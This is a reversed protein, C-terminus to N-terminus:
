LGSNKDPPPPNTEVALSKIIKEYDNLFLPSSLPALIILSSVSFKIILFWSGFPTSNVPDDPSGWFQYPSEIFNPKPKPIM